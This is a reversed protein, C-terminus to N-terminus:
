STRQKTSPINPLTQRQAGFGEWPDSKQDALRDPVTKLNFKAPDLRANVESWALPTAVGACPRARPCFSAVATSGLGNRLWDVLIRGERKKKAVTAVYHDPAEREMAEAFARCWARTSEWDAKATLPAVVHLGKGGSTRCWSALGHDALRDKVEHAAAVITRMSVGEGPDLDFVLRDPHLPDDLSAGWSHLEIASMQTAGYLGAVDDIALWPAGGSEGGRVQNATGTPVHKQFFHQGEIGDPCRVFALPRHAIGPLAWPAVARWYIALDRKTIGPWLEKAPHTLRVGEFTEAARKPAPATILAPQARPSAPVAAAPAVGGLPRAPSPRRPAAKVIHPIAPAAGFEMRREEPDPIDRVVQAPPKDERLGLYAAHRLRGAGSWGIYQVEAVLQPRVWHIGREPPDGAFLLSPPPAGALADLKSRVRGLEKASFGSGVGGAYHLAGTADYFGLHLAGFSTRGRQPDTWGLVVFEERGACKVKLWLGGRGAKYPGDARKCIIGELGMGCASKHMRSGEAEIHDSYRLAGRWAALTQLLTKRARLTCARLDWGNLHLLDFLYYFLQGDRGQSLATQLRSFSSVGDDKLAVLEGDLLANNLGLRGVAAAVRSLRPTWDQGNRTMLTVKGARVWALLRYGDFKVESIWDEGSPPEDALTALQPAQSGPLAARRAGLAPPQQSDPKGPKTTPKAPAGARPAKSDPGAARAAKLKAAKLKAAKLKAAKLKISELATADAGAREEADHEKILLWSEGKERGRPKLRVLVFGGRLRQGALTFKLEGRKLDAAADGVPAWTGRDWIEVTGAGYNGPPIVGEFNAYDRPHDEVHMALRKDHPDLSPGKPVAWSWLVGGHELRFDYHLRSADHKQVVFILKGSPTPGSDPAPEATVSFDRRTLYTDISTSTARGAPAKAHRPPNAVITRAAPM